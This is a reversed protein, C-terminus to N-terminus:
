PTVIRSYVNSRFLHTETRAIHGIALNFSFFLWKWELNKGKQESFSYSIILQVQHWSRIIGSLCAEWCTKLKSVSEHNCFLLCLWLLSEPSLALESSLHYWLGFELACVFCLATDLSVVEGHVCVCAQGGLYLITIKVVKDCYVTPLQTDMWITGCWCM